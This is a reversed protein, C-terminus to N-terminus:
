QNDYGGSSPPPTGGGTASEVKKPTAYKGWWLKATEIGGIGFAIAFTAGIAITVIKTLDEAFTVQLLDMAFLVGFVIIAVKVVLTLWPIGKDDAFPRVLDAVWNAVAAAVLVVAGALIVIPIWALVRTLLDELTTIKLVRVIILWLVVMLYAYAITAIIKPPTQDSPELAKTVGSTEWLKDLWPLDLVKEILTRVWKLIWRGVVLIVLAIVILIAWELLTEGLSRMEELFNDWFSM